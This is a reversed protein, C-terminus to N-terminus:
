EQTGERSARRDSRERSRAAHSPEIIARGPANAGCVVRPGERVTSNPPENGEPASTTLGIRGRGTAGHLPVSRTRFGSGATSIGLRVNGNILYAKSEAAESVSARELTAIDSGERISGFLERWRDEASQGEPLEGRLSSSCLDILWRPECIAQELLVDYLAAARRFSRMDRESSKEAYPFSMRESSPEWTDTPWKRPPWDTPNPKRESPIPGGPTANTGGWSCPVRKTNVRRGDKDRKFKQADNRRTSIEIGEEPDLPIKQHPTEGPSGPWGMGNGAGGTGDPLPSRNRGIVQLLPRQIVKVEFPRDGPEVVATLAIQPSGGSDGTKCTGLDIENRAVFSISAAATDGRKQFDENPEGPDEVWGVGTNVTNEAAKLWAHLSDVVQQLETAGKPGGGGPLPFALPTPPIWTEDVSFQLYGPQHGQPTQCSSSVILEVSRLSGM